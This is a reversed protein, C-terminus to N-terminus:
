DQSLETERSSLFCGVSMEYDQDVHVSSPHKMSAWDKTRQEPDLM